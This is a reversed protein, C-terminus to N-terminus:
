AWVSGRIDVLRHLYPTVEKELAEQEEILVACDKALVVTDWKNDLIKARTKYLVWWSYIDLIERSTVRQSDGIDEPTSISWSLFELTMDNEVHWQFTDFAAWALKEDFENWHGPRLHKSRM